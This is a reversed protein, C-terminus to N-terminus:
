PWPRTPAEKARKRDCAPIKTPLNGGLDDRIGIAGLEKRLRFNNMVSSGNFGKADGLGLLHGIEHLTAKLYGTPENLVNETTNLRIIANRNPASLAAPTITGAGSLVVLEVVITKGPVPVNEEQADNPIAEREIVIMAGGTPVKTFSTGLATEQNATNWASFASEVAAMRNEILKQRKPTSGPEDWGTGFTWTFEDGASLSRWQESFPPSKCESIANGTFSWESAIETSVAIMSLAGAPDVGHLVGQDRLAVLSAGISTPHSQVISGNADREEVVEDGNEDWTLWLLGGNYLGQIPVGATSASWLLEWTGSDRVALEQNPGESLYIRGSNTIMGSALQSEQLEIPPATINGSSNIQRVQPDQDIGLPTWSALVGGRGDPVNTGGYFWVEDPVGHEGDSDITWQYSREDLLQSMAVGQSNIRWMRLKRESRPTGSLNHNVPHYVENIWIGNVCGTTESSRLEELHQVALDGNELIVM